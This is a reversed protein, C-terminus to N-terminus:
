RASACADRLKAFSEPSLAPAPAPVDAVGLLSAIRSSTSPYSSFWIDLGDSSTSNREFFAVLGRHSFGARHLRELAGTDAEAEDQGHGSRCHQASISSTRLVTRRQM